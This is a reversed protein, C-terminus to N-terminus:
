CSLGCFEHLDICRTLSSFLRNIFKHYGLRPRWCSRLFAKTIRLSPPASIRSNFNVPGGLRSNASPAITKPANLHKCLVCWYIETYVQLLDLTSCNRASIESLLGRYLHTRRPLTAGRFLTPVNAPSAHSCQPNVYGRRGNKRGWVEPQSACRKGTPGSRTIRSCLIVLCHHFHFTILFYTFSNKKKKHVATSDSCYNQTTRTAPDNGRSGNQFSRM